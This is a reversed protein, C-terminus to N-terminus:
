LVTEGQVDHAGSRKERFERQHLLVAGADLGQVVERLVERLEVADWEDSAAVVMDADLEAPGIGERRAFRRPLEEAIYGRVTPPPMAREVGVLRLGLRAFDNPNVEAVGGCVLFEERGEGIHLEAADHLPEGREPLRLVEGRRHLSGERLYPRADVQLRLPGTKGRLQERAALGGQAHREFPEGEVM